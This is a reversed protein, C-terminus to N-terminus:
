QYARPVGKFMAGANRCRPAEPRPASRRPRSTAALGRDSRAPEAQLSARPAATGNLAPFRRFSEPETPGPDIFTSGRFSTGRFSARMASGDTDVTEAARATQLRDRAPCSDDAAATPVIEGAIGRAEPEDATRTCRQNLLHSSCGPRTEPAAEERSRGEAGQPHAAHSFARGPRCGRDRLMTGSRRSETALRPQPRLRPRRRESLGHAQSRWWSPRSGSPSCTGEPAAHRHAEALLRKLKGDAALDDASAADFAAYAKRPRAPSWSSDGRRAPRARLIIHSSRAKVEPTVPGRSKDGNRYAQGRRAGPQHDSELSCRRRPPGRAAAGKPRSM